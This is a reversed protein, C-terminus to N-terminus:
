RATFGPSTPDVFRILALQDLTLGASSGGVYLRETGGGDILGGWGLIDLTGTWAQDASAAFTLVAGTSGDFNMTATGQVALKGLTDSFNGIQMVGGGLTVPAADNVINSAGFRFTGGNVALSTTQNISGTVNLTGATVTTGGTYVNVGSLIVTGDGGKSLSGVGTMGAQQTLTFDVGANLAGGGENLVTAKNISFTGGATLAGGNFSLGGTGLRESNFVQVTGGNFFTGGQYAKVNGLILTGTGTKTLSGTGTITGDHRFINTGTVEITAGAANITIPKEGAGTSIGGSIRLTGGNFTIGSTITGLRNMVAVDVTGADIVTGGSFTNATTTIYLVGDGIKRLQGEGSILGTQTLTTGAAVDYTAGGAGFATARASTFSATTKLTGGNFALPGAAAGLQNNASVQIVGVNITTGGSYGSSNVSSRDLVGSGNKVLSLVSGESGNNLGHLLSTNGSGDITLTIPTDVTLGANPAVTNKVALLSGSNNTWVQSATLRVPVGTSSGDGLDVAGAGANVTIGGGGLIIQRPGGTGSQISTSGTNNFTLSAVPRNGNLNVTFAGNTGMTNFVVGDASTPVAGAGTGDQLDSWNTTTEWNATTGKWYYTAASADPCLALTSASVVIAPFRILKMPPIEGLM